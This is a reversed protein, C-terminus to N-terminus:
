VFEYQVLSRVSLHNILEHSIKEVLEDPVGQPTKSQLRLDIPDNVYDVVVFQGEQTYAIETSFLELQCMQALELPIYRLPHLGFRCQEAWTLPTYVHTCPDWWCCYIQGACYIVRFWAPRGELIVPQVLSQLLYQDDPYMRRVELIQEWTTAGLYVGKGGGGHAPKIVFPKGLSSLDFPTLEVQDKCSPIILTTPANIGCAVVEAHMEVKDWARRALRTHNIRAMNYIRAWEILPEFRPDNDSARDFLAGFYLRGSALGYLTEEINYPTVEYFSLGRARCASALIQVFEGEFPDEWAFCLDFNQM